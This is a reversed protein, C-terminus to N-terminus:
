VRRRVLAWGVRLAEAATFVPITLWHYWRAHRALLRLQSRLRRRIKYASRAGTSASVRHWMRAAPAYMLRYGRARARLCWDADEAYMAYGPDLLGVEALAATSLLMCCGTLYDAAAPVDHQGRDKQRLGRHRSWGRWLSLEGGAFWLVDPPDTYYIKPGTAAIHADAVAAAVLARILGPDFRTDNNLLLAFDYGERLAIELGTNMGGAFLLNRDNRHMRIRGDFRAGLADITGDTSANDVVLIEFRPYDIGLLSEVCALTDDRGNWTLVIALVRPLPEPLSDDRGLPGATRPGPAPPAAPRPTRTDVTRLKPGCERATLLRM